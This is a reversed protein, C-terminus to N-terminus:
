TTYQIIHKRRPNVTSKTSQSVTRPPNQPDANKTTLEPFENVDIAKTVKTSHYKNKHTKPEKVAKKFFITNILTAPSSQPQPDNTPFRSSTLKTRKTPCYNKLM